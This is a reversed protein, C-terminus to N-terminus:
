ELLERLKTKKEFCYVLENKIKWSTAWYETHYLKKETQESEKM